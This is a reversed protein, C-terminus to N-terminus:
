AFYKDTFEKPTMIPIKLDRAQEVKGTDEDKNKVLVLFTTKTVSNSLVGGIEKIKEILEKDRFGTMVIKKEYLIHKESDNEEKNETLKKIELKNLLKAERMFDIFLPIKDVFRESTKIAMGDIQKVKTIKSEKSDTSTIINPLVKLISEFKRTGFGRGFINSAAMLEPLSTVKVKEKINEYIKTALKEKFGDVKMYDENTMSIIKPITDYGTKIMRKINGPGLGDVGLIKFFGSINKEKVTENQTIDTLIFDVHTDNWEYNVTPLMPEESPEVVSLIHPIVDGSRIITILAGLGIKNDVIFKANFGTAYEIKVGGLTIPEIQVRPKLYGDKSPTWLVNVVKAEAVQDSIIMKFAFAHEPNGNTRQYIKDDIVIIGDIEYEYEDRWKILIESLYENSLSSVTENKVCIVNEQKLFLMQESPKLEPKIVEYAVFHLDIYNEPTITKKNIMGAVLNRPNAFTKIYKENFVSKKIIFEGRITINKTKPLKLYPILHSIDQGTTGNGRTYLKPIDGETSYLGSVGDLKCSIVYPGNYKEKWKNLANTDPKIKDMSWMEYPLKVKNKEVELSCKTHGEKVAENNPYKELTYERIIDYQNDTLIPKNDCYYSQNAQRILSSLNDETMEKLGNIGNTKFKELLDTDVIKYKKLTKRAAKTKAKIEPEKIEPEKILEVSQGNIREEPQKYVMGLFDFISKEDPFYKDIQPGKVGNKMISLGHENLTYGMTLAHQRMVTNFEKSGTFYLIAFAYENPSSYLFDVRRAPSDPLIKVITLSKTKGKSLVEIIVKDKILQDLIIKFVDKDDNKNSIIIDIDGSDPKGRRYSGVIDFSSEDPAYKNFIKEFEKHFKVIEDRPIRKLIDDYYKLGIRQLNNLKDKNNKLESISTIKDKVLEEAKRPGIGYIDTFINVPNKRERELIALTGTKVYEELKTLITVGIGPLGKLQEPNTIDQKYQIVTEEAKQYAKARFPEGQKKMIDKLEGLISIFEKNYVKTSKDEMNPSVEAEGIIKLRKKIKLKKVSNVGGKKLAKKKTRNKLSPYKFLM